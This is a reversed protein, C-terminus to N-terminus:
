YQADRVEPLTSKYGRYEMQRALSYAVASTRVVRATFVHGRASASARADTVVIKLANGDITASGFGPFTVTNGSESLRGEVYFVVPVDHRCGGAVGVCSPTHEEYAIAFNGNAFLYLSLDGDRNDEGLRETVRPIQCWGQATAVYKFPDLNGASASSGLLCTGLLVLLSLARRM